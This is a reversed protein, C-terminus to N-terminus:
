RRGQHPSRRHFLPVVCAVPDVAARLAQLRLPGRYRRRLEVLQRYEGALTVEARWGPGRRAAVSQHGQVGEQASPSPTFRLDLDGAKAAFECLARVAVAYRATM